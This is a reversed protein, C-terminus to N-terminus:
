RVVLEQTINNEEEGGRIRMGQLSHITLIETLVM